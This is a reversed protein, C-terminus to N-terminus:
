LPKIPLCELTLYLVHLAFNYYKVTHLHFNISSQCSSTAQEQKFHDENVRNVREKGLIFGPM